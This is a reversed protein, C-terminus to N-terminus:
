AGVDHAEVDVLEILGCVPCRFISVTFVMGNEVLAAFDREDGPSRTTGMQRYGMLGWVGEETAM